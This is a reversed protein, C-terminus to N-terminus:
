NRTRCSAPAPVPDATAVGPRSAPRAGDAGALSVALVSALVLAGAPGLVAWPAREVYGIGEALLLGWEPAPPQQGLGLFGLGAIALATGPLRLVAHRAVEPLLAPLVTGALIRARGAGLLPLVRVYPRASIEAALAATHAALPAWSVLTVALAAGAASPGAVAVVLIGAIIPPAANTVEVPGTSWTGTMGVALGIVLCAAVVVLALGLTDLAGHGVRALVDRGSADAGLPLTWSPAELRAHASAYPNRLLGAVVLGLLLAGSVGPVAWWTRHRGAPPGPVPLDGSRAAPGLLARRALAALAGCLAALVLLLLVGAQLAPIDQAAAAGLLARGLGPVAFVEEVPVAGGTLGVVVLAIQGIVGPLARHLAALAIRPRSHGAVAWTHVWREAFAGALATSLLRGLLGGGPLGLALAPLVVHGPGRWGYPPFWGAWVALVVLLAAALLFEPLATLAAAAAGAGRAPRGALGSRVTPGCILAAVLLAVLLAAGMLTLSVGMAELLGPLVPRGSIWSTGFDGRLVGSAWDAFVALPGGDLGLETRIQALVEPTAPRDAYRARLVTYEPSNGSLWPLAGILVVVATFALVRSVLAAAGGGGPVRNRARDAPADAGRGTMQDAARSTVRATM